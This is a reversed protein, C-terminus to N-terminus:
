EHSEAGAVFPYADPLARTGSTCDARSLGGPV